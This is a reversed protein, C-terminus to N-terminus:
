IEVMEAYTDPDKPDFIENSWFLTHLKGTGANTIDHTYFTPMDVYAPQGGRVRFTIVENTFLKRLKIEAEGGIVLFREVKRLHFHNGRTIGPHTSSMFTQGGQDAKVAEFLDGREDSHLQLAVPYHSPFLYSRLTNFLRLDLTDSLDPFVNEGYRALLANLRDLLESVKLPRGSMRNSQVEGGTCAPSEIWDVFLRAVDQAHVLELDGDVDIRPAEGNALQHCFTSVVSNYFPKGFEGFIHPLIVNNVPVGTTRGWNEFKEGALRKGRGYGTDRTVHTSNAYVIAAKSHTRRLSDILAEALWGNVREVEAEDGRNMGACHIIAGLGDVFRNLLADDSFTERTALRIDYQGQRAHLFARIHYGLLGDAGTIGIIM